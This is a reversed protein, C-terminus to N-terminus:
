IFIVINRRVATLNIVGLLQASSNLWSADQYGLQGVKANQPYLEVNFMGDDDLYPNIGLKAGGSLMNVLKSM